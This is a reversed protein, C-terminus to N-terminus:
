IQVNVLSTSGSWPNANSRLEIRRAEVMPVNTSSEELQAVTPSPEAEKKTQVPKIGDGWHDFTFYIRLTDGDLECYRIFLDLMEKISM